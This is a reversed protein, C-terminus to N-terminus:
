VLLCWKFLKERSLVPRTRLVLCYPLRQKRFHTSQRETRRHHHLTQDPLAKRNEWTGSHSDPPSDTGVAGWRWRWWGIFFNSFLSLVGPFSSASGVLLVKIKWTLFTLFSLSRLFVRARPGRRKDILRSNNLTALRNSLIAPPWRGLHCKGDEGFDFVKGCLKQICIM